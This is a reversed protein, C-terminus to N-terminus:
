ENGITTRLMDLADVPELAELQMWECSAEPWDPKDRCTVLFACASSAPRLQTMDLDPPVDDLVFLVSRGTTLELYEKRLEQPDQPMRDGPMKLAAVFHRILAGIGRDQEGGRRMRVFLQGDPFLPAVQHAFTIALASKGIGPDGFIVVTFRDRNRDRIAKHLKELERRRGVFGATAPPLERPLLYPRPATGSEPTQGVGPLAAKQQRLRRWSVTYWVLIAAMAFATAPLLATGLARRDSPIWLGVTLASVGIVLFVALTNIGTAVASSRFIGARRVHGGM